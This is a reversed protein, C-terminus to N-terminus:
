DNRLARGLGMPICIAALWTQYTADNTVLVRVMVFCLTFGATFAGITRWHRDTLM